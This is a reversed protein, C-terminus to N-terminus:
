KTYLLKKPAPAENDWRYKLGMSIIDVHASVDGAYSIGDFWPNGSTASINVSTSRVFLHSYALDVVLDKSIHYSSGISLWTRDNDPLLPIRVDDTVPSIEYGVGARVALRETWQYEAGLSFFWGDKFDFPLTVPTVGITAAAGSSQTVTSTGIRSWNTWEVTGLLTWQPDIRQRVGLSVMDPLNVTTSASGTTAPLPAPGTVSLSGDLKQNIASRYGIGIITTPTPTLTAGVTFGYGWGKGSLNASDPFIGVGPVPVSLGRSVSANGYEIQVGAGISLWDNIRYALSPTANYTKLSSQQGYDRGAWTTPFSTSLGFPSNLSVGVWLKPNIQWSFYGSPVFADDGTDSTGGTYGPVGLLTGTKPTNSAYPFLGMLDVESQIGNLQTMTAPNWFMSSLSGGAAVGAYSAGQGYSSQDRLGFGGAHSQTTTATTALTVLGLAGAARVLSMLRRDVM